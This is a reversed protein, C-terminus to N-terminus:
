FSKSKIIADIRSAVTNWSYEKLYWDKRSAVNTYVTNNDLLELIKNALLNNDDEQPVLAGTVGDEILYPMEYCNRGICPLGYCLAEVFVLGYAEFYSPMVFLDCMKYYEVLEDFRKQGEYHIGDISKSIPNQRPGIIYLELDPKRQKAIKFAEVVAYGGKREFDVGIFLLKNRHRDPIFDLVKINSGGGAHHVKEASVGANNILWDRMWRGMTFIGTCRNQMYDLQYKARKQLRYETQGVFNSLDFLRPNNRKLWLCYDVTIDCYFFTNVDKINIYEAFQFVVDRKKIRKSLATNWYVMSHIDLDNVYIHLKNLIRHLLSVRHDVNVTQWNCHKQLAGQLSYPIGSWTKEPNEINWNCIFYYM